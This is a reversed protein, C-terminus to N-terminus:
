VHARGIKVRPIDFIFANALSLMYTLDDVVTLKVDCENDSIFILGMENENKYFGDISELSIDTDAHIGLLELADAPIMTAGNNKYPASKLQEKKGNYLCAKVGLKLCLAPVKKENSM